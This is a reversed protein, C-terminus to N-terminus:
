KINNLSFKNSHRCKSILESRKNILSTDARLIMTKETLCLDCRRTGCRYPSARAAISWSLTHVVNKEKLSWILKSLETENRNKQHRFSKTHNNYRTKFEGESTGYYVHTNEGESVVAKYVLCKELCDGNLPCSEKVRCNCRRPSSESSMNLVKSNHQKIINGINSTCSYSLKLTNINFIKRYKHHPTFHKRVLKLFSKGINSTVKQNFPPNFWIIKRSRNKPPREKQAPPFKMSVNYGSDKLAKEYIGKGKNFETEGCSLNAIRTTIMEPLQKLITPPHNSLTNIYLPNNDPKRYPSYTRTDLNFTVDLFDTETLNAEITIKLGEQKFLAIINKRIRELSPGSASTIGLGDDRYLGIRNKAVISDLKQLIYLGVLECIEAGDFSGMTVDFLPNDGKKIWASSKDFLLSKRAHM